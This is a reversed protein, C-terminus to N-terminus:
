SFTRVFIVFTRSRIAHFLSQYMLIFKIFGNSIKSFANKEESVKLYDFISTEIEALSPNM